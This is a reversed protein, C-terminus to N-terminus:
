YYINYSQSVPQGDRMTRFSIKWRDEIDKYRVVHQSKIDFNIKIVYLELTPNNEIWEPIMKTSQSLLFIPYNSDIKKNFKKPKIEKLINTKSDKWKAIWHFTSLTDGYLNVIQGQKLPSFKYGSKIKSMFDWYDYVDCYTNLHSYKNSFKKKQYGSKEKIYEWIIRRTDDDNIMENLKLNKNDYICDWVKKKNLYKNYAESLLKTDQLYRSYSTENIETSEEFKNLQIQNIFNSKDVKIIEIKIYQKIFPIQTKDDFSLYEDFIKDIIEPIDLNIKGVYPIGIITGDDDIGFYLEANLLNSNPHVYSCLYKPLYTLLYNELTKIVSNNFTFKCSKLYEVADDNSIILPNFNFTKYECDKRENGLSEGYKM